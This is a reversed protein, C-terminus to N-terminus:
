MYVLTYTRMPGSRICVPGYPAGDVSFGSSVGERSIYHREYYDWGEKMGDVGVGGGLGWGTIGGQM